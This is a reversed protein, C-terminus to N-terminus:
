MGHRHRTAMFPAAEQGSGVQWARHMGLGFSAVWGTKGAFSFTRGEHAARGGFLFRLPFARGFPFGGGSTSPPRLVVWDRPPSQSPSYNSDGSYDAVLVYTGPPVASPSTSCSGRGEVLVITCLVTSDAKITVTGTPIATAGLFGATVVVSFNSLNESGFPVVQFGVTLTVQAPCTSYCTPSQAQAPVAALVTSTVATALLAAGVLAFGIRPKMIRM